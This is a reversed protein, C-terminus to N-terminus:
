LMTHYVQDSGSEFDKSLTDMFRIYVEPHIHNFKTIFSHKLWDVLVESWFVMGLPLVLGYLVYYLDLTASVETLNRFGIILLYVSLQFRELIDIVM